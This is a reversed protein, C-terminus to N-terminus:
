NIGYTKSDLLKEDDYEANVSKKDFKQRYKKYNVPHRDQTAGLASDEEKVAQAVMKKLEKKSIKRKSQSRLVFPFSCIMGVIFSSFVVLYVPFETFEYFGLNLSTKNELNCVMFLLCIVFIFIFRILRWSM